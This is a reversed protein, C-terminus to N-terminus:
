DKVNAVSLFAVIKCHKAFKHPMNEIEKEADSKLLFILPVLPKDYEADYGAMQSRKRFQAPHDLRVLYEKENASVKEIVYLENIM